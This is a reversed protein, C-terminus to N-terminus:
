NWSSMATIKPEKKAGKEGTVFDLYIQGTGMAIGDTSKLMYRCNEEELDKVFSDTYLYKFDYALFAKKDQFTKEKGLIRVTFPYSVMDSLSEMDKELVATKVKGAFEEMALREEDGVIDTIYALTAYVEQAGGATSYTGSIGDGKDESEGELSIQLDGESAKLKKLDKADALFIQEEEGAVVAIRIRPTESGKGNESDYSLVIQANKGGITGIYVNYSKDQCIIEAPLSSLNAGPKKQVEEEEESEAEVTEVEAEESETEKPASEQAASETEATEQAKKGCGALMCALVALLLLAKLSNGKGWNREQKKM